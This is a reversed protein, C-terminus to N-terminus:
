VIKHDPDTVQSSEDEEDISFSQAPPPAPSRPSQIPIDSMSLSGVMNEVPLPRGGNEASDPETLLKDDFPKPKGVVFYYVITLLALIVPVLVAITIVITKRKKELQNQTLSPQIFDDDSTSSSPSLGPSSTPPAVPSGCGCATAFSDIENRGTACSSAPLTHIYEEYEACTTGDSDGILSSGSPLKKDGYCFNCAPEVNPCGCVFAYAQIQEFDKDDQGCQDVTLFSVFDELDQCTFVDSVVKDPTAVLGGNPCFSCQNKVSTAPCGCYGQYEQLASCGADSLDGDNVAIFEVMEGCTPNPNLPLSLLPIHREDYTVDNSGHDACLACTTTASPCGCLFDQRKIFGVRETACEEPTLYSLYDSLEQCTDGFPTNLSENPPSEGGPCFECTTEPKTTGACGCFSAQAEFLSCDDLVLEGAEAIVGLTALEQCTPNENNPIILYPVVSDPNSIEISGDPCIPCPATSNSCGCLYDFRQFDAIWPMECQDAPLYNMYTELEGCTMQLEPIFKEAKAPATGDSCIKCANVPFNV